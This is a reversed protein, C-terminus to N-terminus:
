EKYLRFMRNTFYYLILHFYAICNFHYFFIAPIKYSSTTTMTLILVRALHSSYCDCSVKVM